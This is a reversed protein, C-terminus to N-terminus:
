SLCEKLASLGRRILSKATGLPMNQRAAIEGHSFGAVYALLIVQRSQGDLGGMCDRLKGRGALIEWDETPVIEQRAEQMMALDAPALISLRKGDRLINLCRNRLIAYIWGRASGSGAGQTGAKRWVQVMADQLAEEALDQRRLIRYAVGLLQRGEIDLITAIGHARGAACDAVARRLRDNHDQANHEDSMRPEKM